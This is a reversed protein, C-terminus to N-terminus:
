EPRLMAVPGSLDGELDHCPEGAAVRYLYDPHRVWARLADKGAAVDRAAPDHQCAELIQENAGLCLPISCRLGPTLPAQAM